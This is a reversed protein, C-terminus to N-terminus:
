RLPPWILMVALCGILVVFGVIHVGILVKALDQNNRDLWAEREEKTTARGMALGYFLVLAGGVTMITVFSAGVMVLTDRFFAEGHPSQTRFRIEVFTILLGVSMFAPVSWMLRPPTQHKSLARAALVPFAILALAMLVGGLM